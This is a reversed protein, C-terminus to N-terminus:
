MRRPAPLASWHDYVWLDTYDCFIFCQLFSVAMYVATAPSDSGVAVFPLQALDGLPLAKGHQEQEKVEGGPSRTYHFLILQSRCTTSVRYRLFLSHERSRETTQNLASITALMVVFQEFSLQYRQGTLKRYHKLKRYTHCIQFSSVITLFCDSGALTARLQALGNSQSGM